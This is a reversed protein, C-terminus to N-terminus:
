IGLLGGVLHGDRYAETTRILGHKQLTSYVALVEGRVWSPSAPTRFADDSLKSLVQDFQQDEKMVYAPRIRRLIGTAKNEGNATIPIIARNPLQDWYFRDTRRDLYPYYGAAYRSVIEGVTTWSM